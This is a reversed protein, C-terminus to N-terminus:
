SSPSAASDPEPSPSGTPGAGSEDKGPATEPEDDINEIELEALTPLFEEFRLAPNQAQMCVWIAARWAKFSGRQFKDLWELLTDWSTGGLEELSEAQLTTMEADDLVFGQRPGGRPAYTLRIKM